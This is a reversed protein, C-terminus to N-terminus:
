GGAEWVVQPDAAAYYAITPATALGLLLGLAFLLGVALQESRKAAVSMGILVGFSAVFAFLAWGGTIERGVYAGLAFLGSTVAVLGMTQGLLGGAEDRTLPAPAAITLSTMTM